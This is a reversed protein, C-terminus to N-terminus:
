LNADVFTSPDAFAGMLADSAAGEAAPSEYLSAALLVGVADMVVIGCYYGADGRLSRFRHHSVTATFGLVGRAIESLTNLDDCLSLKLWTCHISIYVQSSNRCIVAEMACRERRAMEAM